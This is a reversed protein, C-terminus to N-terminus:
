CAFGRPLNTLALSPRTRRLGGAAPPRPPRPPSLVELPGQACLSYACGKKRIDRQCEWTLQPETSTPVGGKRPSSKLIPRRAHLPRSWVSKGRLISEEQEWIMLRTSFAGHFLGAETPSM